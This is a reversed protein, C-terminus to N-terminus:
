IEQGGLVKLTGEELYERIFMMVSPETIPVGQLTDKIMRTDFEFCEDRRVTLVFDVQPNALVLSAVTEAINGLPPRDIHSMGYVATLKTGKGPDSEISLHGGTNECGAMLLPIGLGVSRTTRTTTFPSRIKELMEASIGSGNDEIAITLTDQQKDAMIGIRILSAGARLSNDVIDLIHLSIDRM